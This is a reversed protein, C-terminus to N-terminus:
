CGETSGLTIAKVPCKIITSKLEELEEGNIKCRKLNAKKNKIEFYKPSFKECLGCGVCYHEKINLYEGVENGDGNDLPISGRKVLKSTIYAMAFISLVTLIWRIAMFKLGLFKAENALMPVKIVAWSSMIIIINGISAGKSLLMKCIPFAAYIPGASISGLILSFINGKIGSREGFSKIIVQKPVLAEIVATLILIVPMIEIMERIYYMSNSFSQIAKEQSVIFLSIYILIVGALLKNNKGFNVIKL